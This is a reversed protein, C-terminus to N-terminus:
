NQSGFAIQLNINQGDYTIDKINDKFTVIYPHPPIESRLPNKVQQSWASSIASSFLETAANNKDFALSDIQPNYLLIERTTTDYDLEGSIIASGMESLAINQAPRHDYAQFRSRLAIRKGDIYAVTPKTLFLNGRELKVTIPFLSQAVSTALQQSVDVQTGMQAQAMPGILLSLCLWSFHRILVRPKLFLNM